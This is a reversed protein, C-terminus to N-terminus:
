KTATPLIRSTDVVALLLYSRELLYTEAAPLLCLCISKAAGTWGALSDLWCAILVGGDLM